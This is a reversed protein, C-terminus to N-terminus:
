EVISEAGIEGHSLIPAKILVYARAAKGFNTNCVSFMSM